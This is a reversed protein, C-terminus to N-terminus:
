SGRATVLMYLVNGTAGFLFNLTDGATLQLAFTYLANAVLNAGSNLLCNQSNIIATMTNTQDYCVTVNVTFSGKFATLDPLANAAYKAATLATAATVGTSTKIVAVLEPIDVGNVPM